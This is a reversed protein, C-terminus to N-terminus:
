KNLLKDKVSVHKGEFAVGLALIRKLDRDRLEQAYQKEEIQQLAMDVSKELTDGLKTHVCRCGITLM